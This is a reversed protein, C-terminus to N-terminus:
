KIMNRVMAKSLSKEKSLFGRKVLSSFMFLLYYCICILCLVFINELLHPLSLYQEDQISLYQLKVNFIWNLSPIQIEWVFIYLTKLKDSFDKM